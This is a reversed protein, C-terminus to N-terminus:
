FPKANIAMETCSEPILKCNTSFQPHTKYTKPACGLLVSILVIFILLSFQKLKITSM